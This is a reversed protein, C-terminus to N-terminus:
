RGTGLFRLIGPPPLVYSRTGWAPFCPNIDVIILHKGPAPQFSCDHDGACGPVGEEPCSWQALLGLHGLM